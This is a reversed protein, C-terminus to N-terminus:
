ESYRRADVYHDDFYANSLSMEMVSGKTSSVAIFTDGGVYVGLYEAQGPSQQYFFVVDGPMLNERDVQQGYSYQDHLTRPADVGCQQFCYWVFGTTDFSEPGNCSIEDFPKGLLSKAMATVQQSLTGDFETSDPEAPATPQTLEPETLEPETLEPETLEPETEEPETTDGTTEPETTEEPGTTEDPETAETTEPETPETVEPETPETAETAMPETESIPPETVSDTPAAPQTVPTHPAASDASCSKFILVVLLVAIALILVIIMPGLWNGIGKSQYKGRAM